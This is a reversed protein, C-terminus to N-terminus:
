GFQDQVRSFAPHQRNKTKAKLAERAAKFEAKVKEVDKSSGIPLEGTLNVTVNWLWVGPM